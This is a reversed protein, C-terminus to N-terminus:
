NDLSSNKKNIAQSAYKEVFDIAERLNQPYEVYKKTKPCLNKIDEKPDFIHQFYFGNQILFEITQWKKEETKKPPRFRHPLLIMEKGCQSCNYNKEKTSNDFDRNFTLRCNLCVKKHGM